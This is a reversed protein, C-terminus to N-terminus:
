ENSKVPFADEAYTLSRRLSNIVNECARVKHDASTRKKLSELANALQYFKADADVRLLQYLENNLVKFDQEMRESDKKAHDRIQKADQEAQQMLREIRYNINDADQRADSLNRVALAVDEGFKKATQQAAL